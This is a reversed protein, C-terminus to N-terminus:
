RGTARSYQDAVKNFMGIKQLADGLKQPNALFDQMFIIESAKLYILFVDTMSNHFLTDILKAVNREERFPLMQEVRVLMKSVYFHLIDGVSEINRRHGPLVVRGSLGSLKVISECYADYNRFREGTELDVDLLPSQFIGRLLTDGSVAYQDFVYVADSQSHGPCNVTGIGLSSPIDEEAILYKKPFPPFLGGSEFVKRLEELYPKEFGVQVLLAYMSEMRSDHHTIKLSDRYPLYITADTHQEFWHALGYHDIHCHTIFIYNLRALDVNEKFYDKAESTPPGTDFLILGGEHEVTYCHVPGVLYPTEITHQIPTGEM